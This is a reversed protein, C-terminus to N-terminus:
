LGFLHRDVGALDVEALRAARYPRTRALTTTEDATLAGKAVLAYWRAVRWWNDAAERRAAAHGLVQEDTPPPVYPLPRDTIV